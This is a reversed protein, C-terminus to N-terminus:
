NLLFITRESNSLGLCQDVPGVAISSNDCVSCGARVPYVRLYELHWPGTLRPMSASPIALLLKLFAELTAAM